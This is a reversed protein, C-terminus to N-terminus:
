HEREIDGREIPTREKRNKREKMKQNKEKNEICEREREREREREGKGNGCKRWDAQILSVFVLEAISIASEGALNKFM